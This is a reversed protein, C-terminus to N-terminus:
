LKLVFFKNCILFMSDVRNTRARVFSHAFLQHQLIKRANKHTYHACMWLMRKDQMFVIIHLLFQSHLTLQRIKKKNEERHQKKNDIEDCDYSSIFSLMKRFRGWLPCVPAFFFFPVRNQPTSPFSIHWLWGFM